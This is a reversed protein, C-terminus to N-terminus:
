ARKIEGTVPNVQTGTGYKLELDSQVKERKALANNAKELLTKRDTKLNEIEITYQGAVFTAQEYENIVQQLEQLEQETLKEM